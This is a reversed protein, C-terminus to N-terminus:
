VLLSLASCQALLLSKPRHTLSQDYYTGVYTRSETGGFVPLAHRRSPSLTPPDLIQSTSVQNTAMCVSFVMIYYGSTALLYVAVAFLLPFVPRPPPGIGAPLM